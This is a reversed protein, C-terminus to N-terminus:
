KKRSVPKPLVIEAFEQAPFAPATATSTTSTTSTSTSAQQAAKHSALRQELAESVTSEDMPPSALSFKVKSLSSVRKSASRSVSEISHISANSGSVAAPIPASVLASVPAPATVCTPSAATSAVSGNGGSTIFDTDLTFNDITFPVGNDIAFSSDTGAAAVAAAAAAAATTPSIISRRKDGGVGVGIGGNSSIISTRKSASLISSADIADGAIRSLRRASSASTNPASTLGISGVPASKLTLDSEKYDVAIMVYKKGNPLTATIGSETSRSMGSAASINSSTRGQHNSGASGGGGSGTSNNSLSSGSKRPRLRQLLGRKKKEDEFVPPMVSPPPPPPATKLFDVLDQTTRRQAKYDASLLSGELDDNDDDNFDMAAPARPQLNKMFPRRGAAGTPGLSVSGLAPSTASLSEM